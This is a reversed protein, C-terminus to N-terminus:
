SRRTSASAGAWERRPTLQLWCGGSSGAPGAAAAAADSAPAPPTPSAGAAPPLAARTHGLGAESISALALLMSGRGGPRARMLVCGRGGDPSPPPPAPLAPHCSAAAASGPCRPPTAPVQFRVARPTVRTATRWPHACQIPVRQLMHCLHFPNAACARPTRVGLCSIPPGCSHPAGLRPCQLRGLAHVCVPVAILLVCARDALVCVPVYVCVCLLPM